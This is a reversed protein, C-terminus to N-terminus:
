LDEVQAAVGTIFIRLVQGGQQNVVEDFTTPSLQLERSLFNSLNPIVEGGLHDLDLKPVVQSKANDVAQRFESLAV